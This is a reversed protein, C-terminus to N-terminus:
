RKVPLDETRTERKIQNVMSIKRCIAWVGFGFCMAALVGIFYVCKTVMFAGFETLPPASFGWGIVIAIVSNALFSGISFLSLAVTNFSSVSKMETEFLHYMVPRRTGYVPLVTGGINAREAGTDTATPQQVQTGM